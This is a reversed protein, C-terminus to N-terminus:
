FLEPKETHIPILESPNIVAIMERIELGSAHGSSHASKQSINFHSLMRKKREEDIEMELSFPICSSKVWVAGTPKIDTLQNIEWMNMSLIYDQPSEKIERSTIANERFIYDREWTNYDREIQYKEVDDRGILGWSKKPIFIKVESLNLPSREGLIEILYALKLTVVFDRNNAKASDFITSVRDIDRIAHEVFIIGETSEAINTIKQKVYKEGDTDEKDIRTGECLLWKPRAEKAKIVFEQSLENKLGHFRIDGTYQLDTAFVESPLSM